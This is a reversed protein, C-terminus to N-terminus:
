VSLDFVDCARPIVFSLTSNGNPM